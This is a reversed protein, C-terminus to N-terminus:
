VSFVSYAACPMKSRGTAALKEKELRAAETNKGLARFCQIRMDQAARVRVDAMDTAELFKLATSFDGANIFNQAHGLLRIVAVSEQKLYLPNFLNRQDPTLATHREEQFICYLDSFRM